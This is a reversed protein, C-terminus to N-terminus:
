GQERPLFYGIVSKKPDRVCWQLHTRAAIGSGRFVPHGEFFPCRVTDFTSEQNAERFSHLFNIVACDLNRKVLDLDESFGKENKPLPSGAANMTEAYIDYGANLIRLSAAESLDLCNGPAIIAGIVFPTHVAGAGALPHERLFEAWHLARGPSNEWFYVGSGLWDYDNTSLILEEYGGVVREGIARDCGHYALVFGGYRM